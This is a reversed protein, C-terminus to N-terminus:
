WRDEYAAHVEVLMDRNVQGDGEDARPEAAAAGRRSKPVNDAICKPPM